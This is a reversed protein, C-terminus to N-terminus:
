WTDPGKSRSAIEDDLANAMMKALKEGLREVNGGAQKGPM